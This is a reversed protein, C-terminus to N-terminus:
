VAAGLASYPLLTSDPPRRTPFFFLMGRPAERQYFCEGRMGDPCRELTLLRDKVYPLLHPFVQDYHNALDLKTYGEDPWFVKDPHTIALPLGRADAKIVEPKTM